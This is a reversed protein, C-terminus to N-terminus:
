GVNSTAEDWVLIKINGHNKQLFARALCLLQQQSHSVPQGLMDTDLGGRVEITDWLGIKKLAAIIFSDDMMERPDANLRVSASLLFPDQPIAVLSGRLDARSVKYLPTSFMSTM